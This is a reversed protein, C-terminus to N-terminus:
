FLIRGLEAAPKAGASLAYYLKVSIAFCNRHFPAAKAGGM